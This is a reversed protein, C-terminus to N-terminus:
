LCKTGAKAYKVRKSTELKNRKENTRTENTRRGVRKGTDAMCGMMCKVIDVHETCVNEM